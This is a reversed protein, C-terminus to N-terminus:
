AASPMFNRMGKLFAADDEVRRKELWEEADKGSIYRLQDTGDTAARYIVQAVDMPDAGNEMVDKSFAELM